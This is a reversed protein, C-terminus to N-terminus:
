RLRSNASVEQKLKESLESAARRGALGFDAKFESFEAAGNGVVRIRSIMNGVPDTVNCSLDITFQTPPWTFMSQSNSSTFIEPAFVFSIDNGKIASLDSPSKIVFVDAYMARLADRIAKELDRYPFYSVKDGGGGETTVQKSRDADTMVYAVKKSSTSIDGRASTELPSIVIPHACAGLFATLSLIVILRSFMFLKRLNHTM